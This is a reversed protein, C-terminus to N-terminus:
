RPGEKSIAGAPCLQACVSCGSCLEGIFSKEDHREIAPCGFSICIGCGTCTEPDVQYRGRKIGARRANIVCIQKAIVVKVGPREKADKLASTLSTMDYPNVTEVFQVGCARCMAELSVQPAPTGCATLGTTPNPQHGTMATTRNDLIVVTM